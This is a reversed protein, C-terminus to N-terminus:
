KPWEFSSLGIFRAQNQPTTADFWAKPHANMDAVDINGAISM